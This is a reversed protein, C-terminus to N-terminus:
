LFHSSLTHKPQLFPWLSFPFPISHIRLPFLVSSSPNATSPPPDRQGLGSSFAPTAPLTHTAVAISPTLSIVGSVMTNEHSCLAVTQSPSSRPITRPSSSLLSAQPCSRLSAVSSASWAGGLLSIPPSAKPSICAHGSSCPHSVARPLFESSSSM